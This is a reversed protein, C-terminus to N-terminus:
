SQGMATRQFLVDDHKPILQHVDHCASCNLEEFRIAKGEFRPHENERDQHCSYCIDTQVTRNALANFDTHITHCDACAMDENAHVSDAWAIPGHEIEPNAHCAACNATQAHVDELLSGPVHMRHCNRCSVQDNAHLSGDWAILPAEGDARGHCDLCAETEAPRNPVQSSDVHAVHCDACTTNRNHVMDDWALSTFGDDHNDHCALCTETQVSLSTHSDQSFAIMPPRGKGRRSQSVHISGPGHCSECEHQAFPTNPDSRDGHPTDAILAVRKESHCLLCKAAGTSTFAATPGPRGPEKQIDEPFPHMTHCTACSVGEFNSANVHAEVALMVDWDRRHCTMCTQMQKQTSTKANEGYDIMAPRTVGSLADTVHLSGKGHCSECGHQSYPTLPKDTDGHATDAMLHMRQEAHCLLCQGTGRQSFEAPQSLRASLADSEAAAEDVFTEPVQHVTHCSSCSLEMIEAAERANAHGPIKMLEDINAAHCDMCVDIQKQRPTTVNEGFTIMPPRGKGRRSRTVHFSGPGHCSECGHQAFPSDPNDADGHPSESILEMRLGSHCLLCQKPGDETYLPTTVGATAPETQGSAPSIVPVILIFFIFAGIVSRATHTVARCLSNILTTPM